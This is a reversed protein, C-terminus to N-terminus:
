PSEQSNSPPEGKFAETAGPAHNKDPHFKLALKRYSKKLEDESCDKNIGLIEYYDKCKRIRKVAELEQPTYRDGEKHDASQGSKKRHRQRAKGETGHAGPTTGNSDTDAESARTSDGEDSM